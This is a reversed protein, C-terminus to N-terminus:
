SEHELILKYWRYYCPIIGDSLNLHIFYEGLNLKDGPKIRVPVSQFSILAIINTDTLRAIHFTSSISHVEEITSITISSDRDDMKRIPQDYNLVANMTSIKGLQDSLQRTFPGNYVRELKRVSGKPLHFSNTVKTLKNASTHEYATIDHYSRIKTFNDNVRSISNNHSGESLSKFLRELKTNNNGTVKRPRRKFLNKTISSVTKGEVSNIFLRTKDALPKRKQKM